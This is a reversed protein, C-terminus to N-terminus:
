PQNLTSYEIKYINHTSDYILVTNVQSKTTEMHHLSGSHFSGSEESITSLSSDRPM